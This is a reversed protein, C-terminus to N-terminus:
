DTLHALKDVLLWTELLKFLSKKTDTCSSLPNPVDGAGQFCTYLFFFVGSRSHEIGVLRNKMGNEFLNRSADKTHWTSFELADSQKHKSHM